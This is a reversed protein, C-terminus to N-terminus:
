PSPLYEKGQTFLAPETRRRHREGTPLRIAKTRSRFGLQGEEKKDEFTENEDGM